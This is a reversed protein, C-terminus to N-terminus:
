SPCHYMTEMVTDEAYNYIYCGHPRVSNKYTEFLHISLEGSRRNQANNSRDKLHKFHRDPYTLLSSYMGKTSTCWDCRCIVNYLATM